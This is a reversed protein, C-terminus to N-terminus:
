SEPNMSPDGKYLAFAAMTPDALVCFRGIGPIDMPPVYPTAGLEKAKAFDADVDEVYIYAMWHSPAGAAAAEPPLAMCGARMNGEQMFITYVGKNGGGLDMESAETTWGFLSTYFEIAKATDKAMMENWCFTGPIPMAPEPPVEGAHTFPSFIAGNPDEVVAFRGIGPIDTPPVCVKGGLETAKACTADTDDCGIYAIWHSPIGHETELPM